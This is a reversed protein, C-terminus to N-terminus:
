LFMAGTNVFMEFRTSEPGCKRPNSDTAGSQLVTWQNGTGKFM